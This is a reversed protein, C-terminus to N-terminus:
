KYQKVQGQIFKKIKLWNIDEVLKVRSVQKDKDTDIFYVLGRLGNYLDFEPFKKQTISFIKALGIKNILYYIDIFDRRIGRQSIAVIKMAAIDGISAIEVGKFNLTKYILKYPYHFCSLHLGDIQTELTDDIDRLVKISYDKSLNNKFVKMLNGKKFHKKTYFDFDISTRHGLQLALATGGALYLDAKKTFFLNPLIEKQKSNLIELYM